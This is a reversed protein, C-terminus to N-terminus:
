KFQKEEKLKKERKRENTGSLKKQIWVLDVLFFNANKRQRWGWNRKQIWVLYERKFPMKLKHKPTGSSKKKGPDFRGSFFFLFIGAKTGADYHIKESVRLFQTSVSSDIVDRALYKSTGNVTGVFFSKKATRRSKRSGRLVCSFRYRCHFTTRSNRKPSPEKTAQSGRPSNLKNERRVGFRVRVSRFRRARVLFLLFGERERTKVNRFTKIAVAILVCACACVCM